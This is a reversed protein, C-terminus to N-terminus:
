RVETLPPDLITFYINSQKHIVEQITPKKLSKSAHQLKDIQQMKSVLMMCPVEYSQIQEKM